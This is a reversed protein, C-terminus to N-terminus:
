KHGEIQPLDYRNFPAAHAFIFHSPPDSAPPQYSASDGPALNDGDREIDM